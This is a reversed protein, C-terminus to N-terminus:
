AAPGDGGSALPRLLWWGWRSHTERSARTGTGDSDSVHVLVQHTVITSGTNTSAVSFM